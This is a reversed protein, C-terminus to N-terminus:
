ATRQRLVFISQPEWLFSGDEALWGYWMQPTIEWPRHAHRLKFRQDTHDICFPVHCVQAHVKGLGISCKRHNWSRRQVKGIEDHGAWNRSRHGFRSLITSIVSNCAFVSHLKEYLWPHSMPLESMLQLYLRGSKVCHRHGTAAFINLMKSLAQLHLDRDSIRDATIFDKVIQICDLCQLWLHATRNWSSLHTKLSQLATNM